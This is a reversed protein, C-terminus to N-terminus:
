HPDAKASWWCRNTDCPIQQPDLSVARGDAFAYDSRNLHRLAGPDKQLVRNFGPSNANGLEKWIWWRDNPWGGWDSHGDGLLILQSPNEVSSWRCLNDEYGRPRGFPPPAGGPLWHVNVAGIGSAISIEGRAFQGVSTRDGDAYVDKKEAPCDYVRATAGVYSYLYARWSTEIRLLPLYDQMPPFWDGNDDAYLHVALALQRQNNLCFTQQAKGKAKSLAPLLMSALVSIISIVVLLEILTFGRRGFVRLSPSRPAGSRPTAAACCQSARLAMVLNGASEARRIM